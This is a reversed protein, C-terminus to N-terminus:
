QVKSKKTLKTAQISDENRHVDSNNHNSPNGQDRQESLHDESNSVASLEYEDFKLLRKEEFTNTKRLVEEESHSDNSDANDEMKQPTIKKSASNKEPAKENEKCDDVETDDNIKWSRKNLSKSNMERNEEEDGESDTSEARNDVAESAKGKSTIKKKRQGREGLMKDFVDKEYATKGKQKEEDFLDNNHNYMEGRHSGADNAIGHYRKKKRSSASSCAVLDYVNDTETALHSDELSTGLWFFCLM